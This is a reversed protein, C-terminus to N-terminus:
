SDEPPAGTLLLNMAVSVRERDGRHPQVSHRVWSPFLVLMGAEPRIAYQSRVPEGDPGRFVLDAVTMYATPFRPDEIILEGGADPQDAGGPDVYYVGSWFSGNHCHLQNADGPRNVNAWMDIGWNFKRKGAAAIDVMHESATAVAWEALRHSPEGAWATMGIDSHWGGLNSRNIGSEETRRATIADLLAANVADSDPLHAKLLPTAFLDLRETM